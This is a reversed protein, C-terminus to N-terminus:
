RYSMESHLLMRIFDVPINHGEILIPDLGGGGYSFLNIENGIIRITDYNM